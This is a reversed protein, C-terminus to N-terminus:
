KKLRSMNRRSPFVNLRFLFTDLIRAIITIILCCILTLKLFMNLIFLFLIRAINYCSKETNYSSIFM